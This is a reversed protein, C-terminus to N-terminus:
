NYIWMMVPKQSGKIYTTLTSLFSPAVSPCGFSEGIPIPYTEQTPISSHAHLVVSREYARSNTADLGYLKYALGFNGTYSSGIRYRGLSTQLSSPDNSFKLDEDSGNIKSGIGHTVMASELVRDNKLDYVFFRKKGSPISMDILFCYDTNYNNASLYSRLADAQEKLRSVAIRYRTDIHKFSNDEKAFSSDNLDKRLKHRFLSTKVKTINVTTGAKAAVSMMGISIISLFVKIGAKVKKTM